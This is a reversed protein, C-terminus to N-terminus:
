FNGALIGFACKLPNMKLRNQHMQEFDQILKMIHEKHSEAKVVVDNVYVEMINSIFDHFITNMSKQYNVRGNMLDFPMIVWKLTGIARPCRFTTKSTDDEAIYVQNYRSNGDM